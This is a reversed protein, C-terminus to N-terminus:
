VTVMMKMYSPTQNPEHNILRTLVPNQVRTGHVLTKIPFNTPQFPFKMGILYTIREKVVDQTKMDNENGYDWKGSEWILSRNM